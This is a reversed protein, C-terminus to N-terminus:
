RRAAGPRALRTFTDLVIGAAVGVNLSEAGGFRPIALRRDDAAVLGPSVGHTESGLLLVGPRAAALDHLSAGALTAVYVPLDRQRAIELAPGLDGAAVPVRLFSGRSANISKPNYLEVTGTGALLGAVGYWDALRVLTGFNGPDNIGDLALLFRGQEAAHAILDTAAPEGAPRRLILIAADNSKLTGARALDDPSAADCPMGGVLDRHRSLFAESAALYEPRFPSASGATLAELVSTEGEVLFLGAEDRHKKQQLKRILHHRM